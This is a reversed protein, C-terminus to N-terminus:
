DFRRSLPAYKSLATGSRKGRGGEFVVFGKSSYYSLFYMESTLDELVDASLFFWIRGAHDYDVWARAAGDRSFEPAQGFHQAAVRHVEDTTGFVLRGFGAGPDSEWVLNHDPLMNSLIDRGQKRAAVDKAAVSAVFDDKSFAIGLTPALEKEAPRRLLDFDPDVHVGQVAAELPLAFVQELEIMHLTIHEPGAETTVVIPVDLDYAPTAQSLVLELGADTKEAQEIHIQPLGAQDVWQAFFGDLETQSAMEFARQLDDWGAVVGRNMTYFARLAHHFVEEGLKMRLLHFVMAAKGYGESQDQQHSAAVFDRLSAMDEDAMADLNRIWGRRMAAEQAPDQAAGVGYDAMYTTLGESWNGSAYDVRVANGWWSHLIEHALSRGYMYDHSLLTRGMFTLGAFGLGVPVPAAVVSFSDYPYPGIQQEFHAIYRATETLYLDSKDVDEAHFYTRLTVDGLQREAVEYRGVFVMLQESPGDFTFRVHRKGARIANELVAGTVAVQDEADVIVTLDHRRRLDSAGPLWYEGSIYSAEQSWARKRLTNDLAPIHGAFVGAERTPELGAGEPAQAAVDEYQVLLAGTESDFTLAASVPTEAMVVTVPVMGVFLWVAVFRWVAFLARKM